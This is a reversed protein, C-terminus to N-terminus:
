FQNSLEKESLYTEIEKALRANEKIFDYLEVVAKLDPDSSYDNGQHWTSIKHSLGAYGSDINKNEDLLIIKDPYRFMMDTNSFIQYNAVFAFCNDLLKPWLSLDVRQQLSDLAISTHEASHMLRVVGPLTTRDFPLGTPKFMDAMDQFTFDPNYVINEDIRKAEPTSVAYCYALFYNLSDIIMPVSQKLKDNEISKHLAKQKEIESGVDIESKMAGVANLFLGMLILGIMVEVATVAQAGGHAPTYDGFGLTTITVISYYLWSGYDTAAGDPVRFQSDPLAWYIFAFIPTICVYMGLWVIPRIESVKHFFHYLRQSFTM